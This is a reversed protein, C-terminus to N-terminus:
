HTLFLFCQISPCDCSSPYMIRMKMRRKICECVTQLLWVDSFVHRLSFAPHTVLFWTMYINYYRVSGDCAFGGM